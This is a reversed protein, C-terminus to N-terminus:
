SKPAVRTWGSRLSTMGSAGSGIIWCSPWVLFSQSRLAVRRPEFLEAAIMGMQRDDDDFVGQGSIGRVQLIEALSTRMEDDADFRAIVGEQKLVQLGTVLRTLHRDPGPDIQRRTDQMMESEAIGRRQVLRVGVFQDVHQFVPLDMGVARHLVETPDGVEEQGRCVDPVLFSLNLM